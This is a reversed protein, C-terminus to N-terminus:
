EYKEGYFDLFAKASFKMASTSCIKEKHRQIALHQVPCRECSFGYCSKGKQALIYRSNKIIDKRLTNDTTKFEKLIFKTSM